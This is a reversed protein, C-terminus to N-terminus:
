GGLSVQIKWCFGLMFVFAAVLVMYYVNWNRKCGFLSEVGQFFVKGELQEPTPPTRLHAAAFGAAMTVFCGIVNWWLWSIETTQWVLVNGLVGVVVGVLAGFDNTRRTFIALLFVGLIPGYTLSGVKNIIILVNTGFYPTAFACATCFAGWAVTLVKSWFLHDAPDPNPVLFREYIDRMTTASLSNIASDLSSMAASFIAVIILGMIGHPLYNLIYHIVMQNQSMPNARIRAVFTPDHNLLFAGVALGMLSLLGIMAFRCIGNLFLSLRAEDIDKSSLQRQVQSQDCGYYSTYLFFYGFLMAWFSYEEEKVLGWQDTLLVHYRESPFASLVSHLGGAADLAYYTCLVVGAFIIAMQLVDSYVVAAMGGLTDYIVTVVGIFIISAWLPIGLAIEFVMSVSYITVGTALARSLQFLISLTTRTAVGFRLELYEYVSIVGAYRFFPHLFAMVLIVALPLALETQLGALGGGAKFAVFAPIGLMSNTSLQTSMTSIGIAWWSLNNGGLYYDEVSEQSQGLRFSMWVLGVLYVAMISWDMFSLGGQM